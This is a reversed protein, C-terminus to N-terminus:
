RAVAPEPKLRVEFLKPWRKGTVFIRDGAPDYAIGNLVDTRPGRASEPLLGSFDIVGLVRGTAPDIRVVSDTLWVNAFLEGKIWELENLRAIPRDGVAVWISRVVRFTAPDLFRIRPTGDSMVLRKGDTALGWGEGDYTFTGTQRFTAADYIFGVHNQWTLQYAHAGILALGEGFYAAPLSIERVVRGTELDVERLTSEGNLGTSEYLKGDRYVLGETFANPDHPLARVVDYTYFTPQPSAGSACIPAWAFLLAAAALGGRRLVPAAQSM